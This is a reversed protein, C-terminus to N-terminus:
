GIRPGPILLVPVPSSRVIKSGRSGLFLRAVPAQASPGVVLIDGGSWAVRSVARSWSVAEGVVLSDALRQGLGDARSALQDILSQRVRSLWTDTVLDDASSEIMGVLRDPSWVVFSVARLGAGTQRALEDAFQALHAGDATGGYALSIRQIRAAPAPLYGRPALLVPCPASHALRDTISGLSIRGLIGKSSSGLVLATARTEQALALLGAPISTALRVQYTAEVDAPVSARAQDLVQDAWRRLPGHPDGEITLVDAPVQPIAVVVGVVLEQGTSRALVGALALAAAGSEEPTYGVVITM